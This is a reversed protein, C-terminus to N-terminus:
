ALWMTFLARVKLDRSFAVKFVTITYKGFLSRLNLCLIVVGKNRLVSLGWGFFFLKKRFFSLLFLM